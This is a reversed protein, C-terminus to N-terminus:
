AKPIQAWLLLAYVHQYFKDRFERLNQGYMNTNVKQLMGILRKTKNEQGEMKYSEQGRTVSKTLRLKCKHTKQFTIKYKLLQSPM